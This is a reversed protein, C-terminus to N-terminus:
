EYGPNQVLEPNRQLENTSIPWLLDKETFTEGWHNSAGIVNIFSVKGKQSDSFQPYMRTRCIDDWIKFELPFERLREAWVEQIFAEKSMGAYVTAITAATKGSMSSRAKVQALYNAAEAINGGQAVAEAAILLVEAYRFINIDKTGRGTSLMAEEDYYYWNNLAGLDAVTGDPKTFYRHFFQNPQIRLDETEDYVHTYGNSIGYNRNTIAYKFLGWGAAANPFSCAPWWGSTSISTNYEYAYISEALGDTTRLKNFASHAGMDDNTTLSQKGSAIIAKAAEAADAYHDEQVPYGSIQLYVKALLTNAVNKTIRASNAYFAENSLDVVAEKLDSIIQAYVTKADTQTLYINELSEYPELTLPVSGFMKVLWFYNYARFFKSEALYQKKKAESIGEIGPIYKIGANAVNIAEYCPDWVGDMDNAINVSTRSLSKSYQVVVEQGAYENDFYGSVYGGLMSKTGNYIGTSAFLSPAGTRYLYNINQEAQSETILFQSSTIQSKPDEDLFDTCATTVTLLGIGLFLSIIKKMNNKM